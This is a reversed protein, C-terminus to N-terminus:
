RLEAQNQRDLHEPRVEQVPPCLSRSAFGVTMPLRKELQRPVHFLNSYREGLSGERFTHRAIPFTLFAM